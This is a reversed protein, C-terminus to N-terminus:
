RARRRSTRRRSNPALAKMSAVDNDAAAHAHDLALTALSAVNHASAIARAVDHTAFSHRTGSINVAIKTADRLLKVVTYAEDIALLVDGNHASMKAREFHPRAEREIDALTALRKKSAVFRAADANDRARMEELSRRRSTM